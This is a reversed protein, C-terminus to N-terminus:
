RSGAVPATRYLMQEVEPSRAFQLLGNTQPTGTVANKMMSSNLLMNAGRGTAMGAALGQPGTLGLALAGAGVRQAAGHAGERSKLFQASIDALEQLEPNNINKMNALRAISINGEAGNQAINELSLMNSYQKRVTAFAAAEQAGLSRDLAEMLKKKLERAYYAEPTSRNSIRDLTKKINYAAQGNIEGTAAKDIIDDVQKSIIGAGDSGLERSAMNAADALDTIFKQDVKVTNSKLVTDFKGGLDGQAKRLAATVNDSNQGFTKSLATNLQSNMKDMTAARGSGPVYDLSSALANLPKSNVLRDAPIDIGLQSARDALAKVEPAIPKGAITRGIANGAAGVAKTAVPFAGGILAGTGATGPDILGASAGGNVAGGAARLLLNGAGQAATTAPAGGVTM